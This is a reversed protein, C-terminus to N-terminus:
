DCSSYRVVHAWWYEKEPHQTPRTKTRTDYGQPPYEQYYDKLKKEVEAKNTGYFTVYVWGRTGCGSPVKDKPIEMKKPIIKGIPKKM